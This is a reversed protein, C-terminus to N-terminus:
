KVEQISKQLENEINAIGGPVLAFKTLASNTVMFTPTGMLGLNQALTFNDKLGKDLGSKKMETNLKNIDVHLEAELKENYDVRFIDHGANKFSQSIDGNGSFLELFIM